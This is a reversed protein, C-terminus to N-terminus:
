ATRREAPSVNPASDLLADLDARKARQRRMHERACTRCFRRGQKDVRTNAEDYPHQRPCHTKSRWYDAATGRRVNESATVPELHSPNCCAPVRCLHDLQLGEPIPGVLLMYALRHSYWRRATTGPMSLTARGYGARDLSVQWIWCGNGDVVIRQRMYDPLDAPDFWPMELALGTM